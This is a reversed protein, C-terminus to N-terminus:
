DRHRVGLCSIYSASSTCLGSRRASVTARALAMRLDCAGLFSSGSFFGRPFFATGASFFSYLIQFPCRPKALLSKLFVTALCPLSRNNYEQSEISRAWECDGAMITFSRLSRIGNSFITGSNSSDRLGLAVHLLKRRSTGFNRPGASVAPPNSCPFERYYKTDFNMCGTVARDFQEPRM